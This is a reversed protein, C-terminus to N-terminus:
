SLTDASLLGNLAYEAAQQRVSNRDGKFHATETRSHGSALAWGFCVLGVPKEASGGGPGAIGTIALTITAASHKLAGKAMEAAVQESVAGYDELTQASVGLMEQKAQNSYTVFGREFISSSGELSTIQEAVLGGTCSEATALILKKEHLKASIDAVISM